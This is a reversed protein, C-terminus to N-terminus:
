VRTEERVTTGVLYGSEFSEEISFYDWTGFRGALSVNAEALQERIAEFEPRGPARHVVYSPSLLHESVTLTEQVDVFGLADLYELASAAVSEGSLPLGDHPYTYEISLSACGPPCTRANV